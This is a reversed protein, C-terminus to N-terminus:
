EPVDYLKKPLSGMMELFEEWLGRLVSYAMGHSLPLFHTSSAEHTHWKMKEEAQRWVMPLPIPPPPPSHRM